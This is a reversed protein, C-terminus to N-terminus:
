LGAAQRGLRRAAQMSEQDQAVEGKAETGALLLGPEFEMDLADFFYKATLEICDFMRQGKTAGVAILYGIGSDHSKRAQPTTKALVRASWCAQSRDILAKCQAPVGYFYIPASLIIADAEKLLLYVQSMGDDVVCVGTEDCGGCAICGSIKLRRCYIREVEAGAEAAAELAADLLIDTNGKKRPSGYIGLAKMSSRGLGSPRGPRPRRLRAYLLERGRVRMKEHCSPCEEAPKEATYTYGCNTCKWTIQPLLTM